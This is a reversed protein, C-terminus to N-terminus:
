INKSNSQQIWIRLYLVSVLEWPKDKTTHPSGGSNHVYFRQLVDDTQGIYNEDPFNKSQLIYVYHM